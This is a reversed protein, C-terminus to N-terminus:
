NDKNDNKVKVFEIDYDDVVGSEWDRSQNTVSLEYLANHEPYEIPPGNDYTYQNMEDLSEILWGCVECGPCSLRKQPVMTEKYIYHGKANKFYNQKFKYIKGKCDNIKENTEINKFKM